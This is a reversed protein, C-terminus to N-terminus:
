KESLSLSALCRATDVNEGRSNRTSFHHIVYGAEPKLRYFVFDVLCIATEYQMLYMPDERRVLRPTGLKEVVHSPTAGAFDAEGIPQPVIPKVPVDAVPVAMVAREIKEAEPSSVLGSVLGSEPASPAQRVPEEQGTCASLAGTLMLLLGLKQAAYGQIGAQKADAM